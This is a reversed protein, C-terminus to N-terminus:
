RADKARPKVAPPEKEPPKEALQKRISPKRLVLKRSRDEDKSIAAFTEHNAKPESITLSAFPLMGSLKQMDKPKARQAFEPSVRVEFRAGDQSNPEPLRQFQTLISQAEAKIENRTLPTQLLIEERTQDIFLDLIAPHSGCGYGCNKGDEQTPITAAWQRNRYSFRGDNSKMLLTQALVHSVREAGFERLVSQAGARSLRNDHYNESIAKGIARCCAISVERSDSHQDAEGHEWAYQFSKLYIPTDRKYNPKRESITEAKRKPIEPAKETEKQSEINLAYEHRVQNLFLDTLGPSGSKEVLYQFSLDRGTPDKVDFPPQSAAWAKNEASIRGDREQHRITSALVHFTREFGFMATVEKAGADGLCNNRYHRAIASEIAEKCAVNADLSAWYQAEEGRERATEFSQQYLPIAQLEKAREAVMSLEGMDRRALTVFEDLKVPHSQVPSAWRSEKSDFMPMTEAWTENANSFRGDGGRQQLTDALVYAVREAGFREIVGKAASDPLHAGDWQESIARDIAKRCEADARRSNRWAQLEVTERAYASSYPYVPVDKLSKEDM